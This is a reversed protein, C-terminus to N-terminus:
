GDLQEREDSRPLLSTFMSINLRQMYLLLLLTLLLPTVKRKQCYLDAM